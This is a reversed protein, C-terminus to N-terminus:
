SGLVKTRPAYGCSCNALVNRSLCGSKVAEELPVNLLRDSIEPFHTGIIESAQEYSLGKRLRFLLLVPWLVWRALAMASGGALVWFIVTRGAIGFRGVHELFLFILTSGVIAGISTLVGGTLRNLHYAWVFEDLKKILSSSREM